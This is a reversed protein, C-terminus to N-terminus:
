FSSQIEVLKEALIQELFMGLNYGISVAMGATLFAWLGPLNSLYYAAIIPVLAAIYHVMSLAIIQVDQHTVPKLADKYVYLTLLGFGLVSGFGFALIELASPIGLQNLIMAGSGWFGITFGYARSERALTDQLFARRM